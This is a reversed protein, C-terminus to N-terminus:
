EKSREHEPAPQPPDPWLAKVGLSSQFLVSMAEKMTDMFAKEVEPSQRILSMRMSGLLQAGQMTGVPAFYANWFEGEVRMALRGVQQRKKGTMPM